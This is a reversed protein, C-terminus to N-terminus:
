FSCSPCVTKARERSQNLLKLGGERDGSDVLRNAADRGNRYIADALASPTLYRSTEVPQILSAGPGASRVALLYSQYDNYQKILRVQETTANLAVQKQELVVIQKQTEQNQANPDSARLQQIAADNNRQASSLTAEVNTSATAESATRAGILELHARTIALDPNEAARTYLEKNVLETRLRRAEQLAARDADTATGADIKSQLRQTETDLSGIRTRIASAEELAKNAKSIANDLDEEFKKRNTILNSLAGSDDKPLLLNIRLLDKNITRLILYSGLILLLGFLANTIQSKAKSKGFISEEYMYRFGAFIIMIVALIGGIGIAVNFLGQLIGGPNKSTKTYDSIGPIDTLPIYQNNIKYDILQASLESPFVAVVCM